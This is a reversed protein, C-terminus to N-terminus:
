CGKRHYQTELKELEQEVNKRLHFPVRRHDQAVPKVSDDIHLKVQYNKLKGIGTCLRSNCVCLVLLSSWRTIDLVAKVNPAASFDVYVTTNGEELAVSILMHDSVNSKRVQENSIMNGISQRDEGSGGNIVSFDYEPKASLFNTGQLWLQSKLM